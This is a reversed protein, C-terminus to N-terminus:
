SFKDSKNNTISQIIQIPWYHVQCNLYLKIPGERKQDLMPYAQYIKYILCLSMINYKLCFTLFRFWENITQLLKLSQGIHIHMADGIESVFHCLAKDIMPSSNNTLNSLNSSNFVQIYYLIIHFWSVKQRSWNFYWEVM